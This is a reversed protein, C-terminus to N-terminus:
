SLMLGDMLRGDRVAPAAAAHSAIGRFRFRGMINALTSTNGGQNGSGFSALSLISDVDSFAGARAMFIKGGGGEEATTGYYRITGSLKHSELYEKTM